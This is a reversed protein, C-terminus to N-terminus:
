FPPCDLRASRVISIPGHISKLSLPTEIGLERFLNKEVIRDGSFALADPSPHVAVDTILREVAAAPVNEFEYTVVDCAALEDLAVPDVWDAEILRTIQGAVADPKPDLVVTEISLDRAAEALMQGLQGGGLIGVKM